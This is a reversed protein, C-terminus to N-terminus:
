FVTALPTSLTLMHARTTSSPLNRTEKRVLLLNAGCWDDPPLLVDPRVVPLCLLSPLFFVQFYSIFIIKLILNYTNKFKFKSLRLLGCM